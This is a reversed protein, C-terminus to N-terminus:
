FCSNNPFIVLLTRKDISGGTIQDLDISLYLAPYLVFNSIENRVLGIGDKIMLKSEKVEFSNCFQVVTLTPETAEHEQIKVKSVYLDLLMSTIFTPKEKV